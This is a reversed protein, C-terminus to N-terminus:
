VNDGAPAIPFRKQLIETAALAEMTPVDGAAAM